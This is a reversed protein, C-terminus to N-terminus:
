HNNCSLDVNYIQINNIPSSYIEKFNEEFFEYNIKIGEISTPNQIELYDVSNLKMLSCVHATNSSQLIDKMLGLREDTKYGASWPFYPWGLFIKRGALSAPDYIYSANIFISQKPTNEIIFREVDNNKYDKIEVYVDNKIPFIDIIGSFTMFAVYFIAVIKGLTKRQWLRYVFYAALINAGIVFLNFFKHNAAIEPSFRFLNGVVFFLLFPLFIKRQKRKALLFGFPALVTVFGLNYFWYRIFSLPTPNAILYGLHFINTQINTGGIYIIQPLATVVSVLAILFLKKRINPLVLFLILLSIEMMAFVTLHIFPFFGLLIGLILTKNLGLKEPKKFAKYIILIFILFSAYAFALHRQNTYINLSWFASVLNSGDYPAFSPFTTNRIIDLPTNLSIPYKEFFKLFSLSGNFLFLICALISVAMKKFLEQSLLYIAMLLAFFSFISLSNLAWDLRLGIKELMGAAFFFAFHYKMPPGSFLPYQLPFNQGLSFSRILPITAAFDSWVKTAIELNGSLNVRFTKWMLWWSFIFLVIFFVTEPKIKRNVM